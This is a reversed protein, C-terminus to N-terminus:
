LGPQPDANLSVLDQADTLEEINWGAPKGRGWGEVWWTFATRAGEVPWYVGTYGGFGSGFCGYLGRLPQVLVWFSGRVEGMLSSRLLQKLATWVM